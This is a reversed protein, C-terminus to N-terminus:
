CQVTYSVLNTTYLRYSEYKSALITRCTTKQIRELQKSQDITINSNWVPAAYECIPRVYCMYLSVLDDASSWFTKSSVAHKVYPQSINNIRAQWGLDSQVTLGVIRTESVAELRIGAIQLNPPAPFDKKFCIQMVKCKSLNLTLYKDNAWADLNHVDQGIQSLQNALRVEGFNLDDVYKFNKTASDESASNIVAIFTIPGLKTGQPVGCSLTKWKSLASQYQM